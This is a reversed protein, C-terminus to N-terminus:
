PLLLDLLSGVLGGGGGSGGPPQTTSTTSGSTSPTSSSSSSSTSTGDPDEPDVGTPSTSGTSPPVVRDQGGPSEPVSGDSDGGGEVVPDDADDSSSTSERRTSTEWGSGDSGDGGGSPLSSGDRDHTGDGSRETDSAAGTSPSSAADDRTVWLLSGLAFLWVVAVVVLGALPPLRRLALRATGCVARIFDVLGLM